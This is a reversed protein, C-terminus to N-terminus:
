PGSPVDFFSDPWSSGPQTAQAAPPAAAKRKLRAGLLAKIRSRLRARRVHPTSLANAHFLPMQATEAAAPEAHSEDAAWSPEGGTSGAPDDPHPDRPMPLPM